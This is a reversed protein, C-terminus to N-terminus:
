DPPKQTQGPPLRRFQYICFAVPTLLMLILNTGGISEETLCFIIALLGWISMAVWEEARERAMPWNGDVKKLAKMLRTGSSLVFWVLFAVIVITVTRSDLVVPLKGLFLAATVVTLLVIM